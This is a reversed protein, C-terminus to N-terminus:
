LVQKWKLCQKQIELSRQSHLSSLDSKSELFAQVGLCLMETSM